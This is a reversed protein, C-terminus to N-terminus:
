KKIINSSVRKEDDNYMIIYTGAPFDSLSFNHYYVGAKQESEKYLNKVISNSTDNLDIQVFGDSSLTYAVSFDDSKPNKFVSFLVPDFFETKKINNTADAYVIEYNTKYNIGNLNLSPDGMLNYSKINRKAKNNPIYSKYFQKMGANIIASLTAHNNKFAKSFIKKEIVVDSDTTTNVSAGFYAVAGKKARTFAESMAVYNPHSFNGTKCAFAFMIPYVTNTTAPLDRKEIEFSKGAV